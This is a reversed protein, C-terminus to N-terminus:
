RYSINFLSRCDYIPSHILGSLHACGTNAIVEIMGRVDDDGVSCAGHTGGIQISDDTRSRSSESCAKTKRGCTDGCPVSSCRSPPGTSTKQHLRSRRACPPSSSTRLRWRHPIVADSSSECLDREACTDLAWADLTRQTM